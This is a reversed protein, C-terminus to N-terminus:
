RRNLIAIYHNPRVIHPGSMSQQQPLVVPDRYQIRSAFPNVQYQPISQIDDYVADYTNMYQHLIQRDREADLASHATLLLTCGVSTFYQHFILQLTPQWSQLLHPHGIGPNLLIYANYYYKAVTDRVETDSVETLEDHFTHYLGKFLWRITLRTSSNQTGDNDQFPQLTVDPRRNMEPGIFDLYIHVPSSPVAADNSNAVIMENMLYIMEGWYELPVLAESRAGLCCWRITTTTKSSALEDDVCKKEDLNWLLLEKVVSVLTMPVTMVHTSLAQGNERKLIKYHFIGNEIIGIGKGPNTYRATKSIVHIILHCM